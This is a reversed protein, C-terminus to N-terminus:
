VKTSTQLRRKYLMRDVSGFGGGSLFLALCTGIALLHFQYGEGQQNGLWNMYFGHELHYFTAGIMIVGLVAAGVRSGVGFLLFLPVIFEILIVLLAILYPLSYYTQLANMTAEFGTIKMYGMPFMMVFLTIRLVLGIYGNDTVLIKNLM